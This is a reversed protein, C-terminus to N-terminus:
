AVSLLNIFLILIIFTIQILFDLISKSLIALICCCCWGKGLKSWLAIVSRRSMDHNLM